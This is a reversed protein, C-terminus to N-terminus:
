QQHLQHVPLPLTSQSSRANSRIFSRPPKEADLRLLFMDLQPRLGVVDIIVGQATNSVWGALGMNTALRYVCPRFGVGQVAGRITV